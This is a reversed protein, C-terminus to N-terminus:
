EGETIVKGGVAEIKQKARETAKNVKVIFPKTCKGGGLLKDFGKKELNIDLMGFTELDKVNITKGRKKLSKFGKKGFYKYDLNYVWSRRHKTSGAFGKGGRSGKGRHKKKSGYGHSRSGRQKRLKKRFRVPM